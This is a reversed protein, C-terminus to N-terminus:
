NLEKLPSYNYKGDAYLNYCVEGAPHTSISNLYAYRYDDRSGVGSGMTYAVDSSDQTYNYENKKEYKYTTCLQYYFREPQDPAYYGPTVGTSGSVSFDDLMDTPSSTNGDESPLTNAKYTVLNSDILKQVAESEYSSTHTM